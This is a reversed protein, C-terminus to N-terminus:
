RWQGSEAEAKLEHYKFTGIAAQVFGITIFIPVLIGGVANPGSPASALMIIKNLIYYMVMLVACVRSNRYIGFSLGFVIVVDLYSFVNLGAISTNTVVVVTVILFTLIGVIVGMIWGTKIKKLADTLRPDQKHRANPFPEEYSNVYAPVTGYVPAQGYPAPAAAPSYAPAAGYSSTPPAYAPSSPPAYPQQYQPPYPQPPAPQQYPPPYGTPPAYPPPAASQFFERLAPVERAPIPKMTGKGVLTEPTVRGQQIWQRLTDLDTPYAMGEVIVHYLGGTPVM